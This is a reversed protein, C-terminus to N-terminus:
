WRRSTSGGSIGKGSRLSSLCFFALFIFFSLLVVTFTLRRHLDHSALLVLVLSHSGGFFPSRLAISCGFMLGISFGVDSLLVFVLAVFVGYRRRDWSSLPALFAHGCGLNKRGRACVSVCLGRPSTDLRQLLQASQQLFPAKLRQNHFVILMGRGTHQPNHENNENSNRASSHNRSPESEFPRWPSLPWTRRRPRSRGLWRTSSAVSKCWWTPCM